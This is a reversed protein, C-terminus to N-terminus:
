IVVASVEGDHVTVEFVTAPGDPSPVTIQHAGDQAASAKFQM